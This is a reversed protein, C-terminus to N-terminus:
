IKIDWEVNAGNELIGTKPKKSPISSNASKLKNQNSICDLTISNHTNM